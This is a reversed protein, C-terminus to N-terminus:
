PYMVMLSSETLLCRGIGLCDKVVCMIVDSLRGILDSINESFGEGILLRKVEGGLGGINDELDTIWLTRYISGCKVGVIFSCKVGDIDDCELKFRANDVGGAGVVEVCVDVCNNELEVGCKTLKLGVVASRFKVVSDWVEKLHEVISSLTNSICELLVYKSKIVKEIEVRLDLEFLEGVSVRFNKISVSTRPVSEPHDMVMLCDEVDEKCVRCSM